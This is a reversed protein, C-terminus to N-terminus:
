VIGTACPATLAGAGLGAMGLGSAGPDFAGPGRAISGLAPAMPLATEGLEGRRHLLATPLRLSAQALAGSLAHCAPLRGLLHHDSASPCPHGAHPGNGLVYRHCRVALTWLRSRASCVHQRLEQFLRLGPTTCGANANQPPLCGEHRSRPRCGVSVLFPPVWGRRAAPDVTTEAQSRSKRSILALPVLIVDVM